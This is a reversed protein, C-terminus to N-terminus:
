NAPRVTRNCLFSKIPHEREFSREENWLHVSSMSGVGLSKPHALTKFGLNECSSKKAMKFFFGYLGALVASQSVGAKRPLKNDGLHVWWKNSFLVIRLVM